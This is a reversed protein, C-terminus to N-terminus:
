KTEEKQQQKRKEEEQKILRPISTKYFFDWMAQKTAETVPLEM